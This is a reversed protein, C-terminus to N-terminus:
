QRPTPSGLWLHFDAIGPATFRVARSGSERRAWGLAVVRELLLRGVIGALHSRRESWDLCPRCLSRSSLRMAEPDIGLRAIQDIGTSTLTVENQAAIIAGSQALRTFM